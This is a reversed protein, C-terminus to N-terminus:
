GSETSRNVICFSVMLRLAAMSILALTSALLRALPLVAFERWLRFSGFASKRMVVLVARLCSSCHFRLHAASASPNPKPEGAATPLAIEPEPNPATAMTRWALRM